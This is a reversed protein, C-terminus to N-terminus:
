KNRLLSKYSHGSGGPMSGKQCGFALLYYWHGSEALPLAASISRAVDCECTCLFCIMGQWLEVM